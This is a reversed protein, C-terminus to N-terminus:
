SHIDAVAMAAIRAVDEVTLQINPAEPGGAALGREATLAFVDARQQHDLAEHLRAAIREEITPM